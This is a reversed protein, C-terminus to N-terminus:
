LHTEGQANDSFQIAASGRGTRRGNRYVGSGRWANELWHMKRVSSSVFSLYKTSVPAAKLMMGQM